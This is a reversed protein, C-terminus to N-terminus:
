WWPDAPWDMARAAIATKLVDDSESVDCGESPLGKDKRVVFATITPWNRERCHDQIVGLPKGLTRHHEGIAEGLEQYTVWQGKLVKSKGRLFKYIERSLTLSRETYGRSVNKRRVTM